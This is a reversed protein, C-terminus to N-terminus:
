RLAQLATKLSSALAVANAKGGKELQLVDHGNTILDLAHSFAERAAATQQKREAVMGTIQYAVASEPYITLLQAIAETVTDDTGVYFEHLAHRRAVEAREPVSRVPRVEFRLLTAQPNIPVEASATEPVLQIEYLGPAAPFRLTGTWSAVDRPELLFETGWEVGDNIGRRAITGRTQLDLRIAQAPVPSRRVVPRFADSASGISSVRQSRGTANGIELAITIREMDFFVHRAPLQAPDVYANGYYNAVKAVFNLSNPQQAAAGFTQYALMLMVATIRTYRM